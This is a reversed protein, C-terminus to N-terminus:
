TINASDHEAELSSVTTAAREMKDGLEKHVAEDGVDFAKTLLDAVNNDTHIKVMEILRKEYSDRIFHHWIKIHKIKSHYVHNKIVCIVSKNDVHIKTQMFNHGYDMMQNQILLVQRCCYSAVIYEAKTTSNAVVTQKKCQWFILRSSLFQCSGTISKRDLSAGTYDSIMSRYLHVDVDEGDEDKTLPKHTEMPTSASRIRNEWWGRLVVREEEGTWGVVGCWEWSKLGCKGAVELC